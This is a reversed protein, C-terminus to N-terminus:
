FLTVYCCHGKPAILFRNDMEMMEDQMCDSLRAGRCHRFFLATALRLELYALHIGLCVRSGGGFPMYAAKQQASLKSKDMFRNSDFRLPEQFLRPDRHLTYAQTSVETGAPLEHGAINIGQSPVIRPLAGPAAGYLRLTEELVGNLLPADELESMDLADSFGNVEEELRTQLAPDKLVAWVLYTLTVATTDSGAVILNGAEERVAKDTLTVKEYDDSAALMQGFLNMNNGQGSRMNQIAVAGHEFVVEDATVMKRVGEFPLCRLITHVLPFEARLVGGLLTLQLADIYPTQKSQELMGFSEGFSLQTIVDTAMLTWWKLVDAGKGPQAASVRINNVALMTRRRIEAEWNSKLSSNSFARAFLKRRAAHDHPNQMAFIGPERDPTLKTYFDSKLFGSGIKHIRSVGALDAVAVENPAIRVVDGYKQHLDDVYFIRRGSLVHFRLVINTYKSYWPGPLKALHARREELLIKLLYGLVAFAVGFVLFISPM